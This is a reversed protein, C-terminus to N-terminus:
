DVWEPPGQVDESKGPMATPEQAPEPQAQPAAPEAASAGNDASGSPNQEDPEKEKTVSTPEIDIPQEFTQPRGMSASHDLDIAKAMEASKGKRKLLRKIVTKKAMEDFWQTWPGSNKAKSSNRVKEIEETTMVEFDTLGSVTEYVAYYCYVEGREKHSLKYDVKHIIRRGTGEDPDFVDNERVEKCYVSCKETREALSILGKYSIILQANNCKNKSDYFPVLHAEGLASDPELGLMSCQVIAKQLSAATCAQLKPNQLLSNYAVRMLRDYSLHKPIAKEIGGRNAQLYDWVTAATKNVAVADSM